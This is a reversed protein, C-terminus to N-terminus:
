LKERSPIFAKNKLKVGHLILTTPLRASLHGSQAKYGITITYRKVWPALWPLLEMCTWMQTIPTEM